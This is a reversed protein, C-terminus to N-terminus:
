PTILFRMPPLPTPPVEGDRPAFTVALTYDGPALNPYLLDIGVVFGRSYKYWTCPRGAEHRPPIEITISDVPPNQLTEARPALMHGQADQLQYHFDLYGQMCGLNLQKTSSVRLKINQVSHNRYSPEYTGEVNVGTSSTGRVENMAVNSAQVRVGSSAVALALLLVGASVSGPMNPLKSM